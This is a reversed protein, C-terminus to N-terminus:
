QGFTEILKKVAEFVILAAAILRTIWKEIWPISVKSTLKNMPKRIIFINIKM